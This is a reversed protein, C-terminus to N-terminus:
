AKQYADVARTLLADNAADGKKSPKWQNDLSNGLFFYAAALDPNDQVAEQYLGSAKRYDQQQYAANADKFAKQAQLESVKGCGVTVVAAGLVSLALAAIRPTGSLTRMSGGKHGNTSM